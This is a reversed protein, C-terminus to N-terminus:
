SGEREREGSYGHSCLAEVLGFRRVRRLDRRGRWTHAEIVLGVRTM